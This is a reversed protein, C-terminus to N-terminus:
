MFFTRHQKLIFKTRADQQTESRTDAEATLRFLVLSVARLRKSTLQRALGFM